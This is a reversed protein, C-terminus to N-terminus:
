ILLCNDPETTTDSLFQDLITELNNMETYPIRLLPINNNICYTSKIMDLKRTLQFRKMTKDKNKGGFGNPKFHQEGDFEILINLDPLYFDFPLQRKHVCKEFKQQQEFDINNEILYYMIALEGKSTKCIPCGSGNRHGNIEQKFEGHTPCIIIIKSKSNIIDQHKPYSYLGKHKIICEEIHEEYSTTQKDFHCQPCGDGRKHSNIRQKFEGHTPCIITIKSKANIIDQHKPYSYKNEHIMNFEDIHDEYSKKLSECQRIKSCKQCGNGSKHDNLTQKFEGHIPCIITIKTRMGQLEQHDPYSYFGKHKIICDNIHKNYSMTNKKNKLKIGCEPCQWSISTADWKKEFKNGCNCKFKFKTKRLNIMDNYEQETTLLECNNTEVYQKVKQYSKRKKGM